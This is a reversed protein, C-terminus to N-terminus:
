AEVTLRKLVSALKAVDLPKVLHEAFGAERSRHLDEEQGFGSVAVGPINRRRKLQRMIELGSGDPLGIDSVLVDFRQEEVLRLAEAVSTATGVEYGMTKLLRAMIRLTDVHDEVLLARRGGSRGARDGPSQGVESQTPVTALELEFTAGKGAGDSRAELTGGHQEVIRRAAALGLGLGGYRRTVTREGQEFPTFLRKLMEPEMGIGTDSVELRFRGEARNSSRIAVQGGAVSFKVANDVLNTVVQGIRGPDAWVFSRPAELAVTLRLAKAEIEREYQKVIAGVLAHADVAEQHLELEGRRSQTLSLLDGVLKAQHEANRRIMAMAERVEDSLESQAELLSVSALIPTLPTRLEHSVVALFQDKAQNAREAEARAARERELLGERQNEAEARAGMEQRLMQNSHALEATRERVTQELQAPSPLALARPMLPWMAVATGISLVATVFKVMGDVRYFPRWIDLVGFLHTTGCALIFGAFLWFMWSFALDRRRYVFYVLGFPISYYALATLGDSIVHLWIVPGEYFMCVRRPTYVKLLNDFFSGDGADGAPAAHVHGSGMDAGSSAPPSLAWAFGLVLL